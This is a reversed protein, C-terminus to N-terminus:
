QYDWCHCHWQHAFLQLSFSQTTRMIVGSNAYKECFLLLDPYFQGEDIGIVDADELGEVDSLRSCAVAKHTFRCFFFTSLISEAHSNIRQDDCCLVVHIIDIM